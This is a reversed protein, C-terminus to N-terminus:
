PWREGIYVFNNKYTQQKRVIAISFLVVILLYRKTTNRSPTFIELKSCTWKLSANGSPIPELIKLWVLFISTGVRLIYVSTYLTFREEVISAPVVLWLTSGKQITFEAYDYINSLKKDKCIFNM